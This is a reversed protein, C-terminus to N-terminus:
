VKVSVAGCIDSSRLVVVLHFVFQDLEVESLSAHIPRAVGVDARIPVFGCLLARFPLSMGVYM